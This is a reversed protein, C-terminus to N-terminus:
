EPVNRASIGIEQGVDVQEEDMGARGAAAHLLVVIALEARLADPLSQEGRLRQQRLSRDRPRVADAPLVPDEEGASRADDIREALGRRHDFAELRALEVHMESRAIRL